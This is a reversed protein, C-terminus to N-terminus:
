SNQERCYHSRPMPLFPSPLAPYFHCSPITSTDHSMSPYFNKQHPSLNGITPLCVFSCVFLNVLIPLCLFSCVFPEVLTPLCLFSCVFPDVLTPLCLFSCVFPDVLTLYLLTPLNNYFSMPPSSHVFVTPYLLTPLNYYFSM